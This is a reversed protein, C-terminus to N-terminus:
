VGGMKIALRRYLPNSDRMNGKANKSDNIQIHGIKEPTSRKNIEM